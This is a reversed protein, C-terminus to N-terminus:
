HRPLVRRRHTIRAVSVFREHHSRTDWATQPDDTSWALTPSDSAFFFTAITFIMESFNLFALLLWMPVLFHSSRVFCSSCKWCLPYYVLTLSPSANGPKGVVFIGCFVAFEPPAPRYLVWRACGYTVDLSCISHSWLPQQAVSFQLFILGNFGWAQLWVVISISEFRGEPLSVYSHFIM